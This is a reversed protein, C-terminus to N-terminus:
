IEEWNEVEATEKTARAASRHPKIVLAPECTKAEPLPFVESTGGYKKRLDSIDGFELARMPCASVCAPPKGEDLYDACFDCKTVWRKREDFQMAGYPCAWECYRCGICAFTDILVVGDMRKFIAKTPCSPLCVPNECHHCAMSLFYAFIDPVWVNGNKKWRGGAIEYVRRWLVGVALDNKDKCAGQCAKCGSCLSSDFYFGYQRVAQGSM